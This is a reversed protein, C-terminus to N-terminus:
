KTKGCATQPGPTLPHPTHPLRTPDMRSGEKCAPRSDLLTPWRARCATLSPGRLMYQESEPATGTITGPAARIRGEGVRGWGM